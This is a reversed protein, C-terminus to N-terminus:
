ANDANLTSRGTLDKVSMVLQPRNDCTIMGSENDFDGIRYLMFDDPYASLMSGNGKASETVVRMALRDNKQFFPPSFEQAKLDLISYIRLMTM